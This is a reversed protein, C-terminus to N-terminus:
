SALQSDSATKMAGSYENVFFSAVRLCAMAGHNPM